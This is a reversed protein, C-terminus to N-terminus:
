DYWTPIEGMHPKTMPLHRPLRRRGEVERNVQGWHNPVFAFVPHYKNISSYPFFSSNSYMIM